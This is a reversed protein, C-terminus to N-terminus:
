DQQEKRSGGSTDTRWVAPIEGDTNDKRRWSAFYDCIHPAKHNRIKFRAFSFVESWCKNRLFAGASRYLRMYMCTVMFQSLFCNRIKLFLISFRRTSPLFNSAGYLLSLSIHFCLIPFSHPPLSYFGKNEPTKGNEQTCNYYVCFHSPFCHVPNM